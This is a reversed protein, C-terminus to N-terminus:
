RQTQLSQVQALIQEVTSVEYSGMSKLIRISEQLNAIATGFDGQAALLQASMALTAAIGQQDEIARKIELSQEYLAIAENVKGQNAYIGAMQHLTAAIGQQDEIARKIELSQEYLAIAATVDGQTTKINAMAHLTAAIGRQDGIERQTALAQEYLQVSNILNGQQTNIRAMAYLNAAIGQQNGIMRNIDLSQEYLSIADNIKGQTVYINALANITNAIGQQNGIIRNIDLSQEYLSIADNIKGQTTYINAMEYLNAAVGQQDNITQDIELVQTHLQIAENFKGQIEYVKALRSLAKAVQNKDRTEQKRLGLSKQLNINARDLDQQYDDSKRQELREVYAAGLSSYLSTLLPSTPDKIKLDDIQKELNPISGQSITDVNAMLIQKAFVVNSNGQIQVIPANASNVQYEIGRSALWLSAELLDFQIIIQHIQQVIPEVEAKLRQDELAIALHEKLNGVAVDDQKEAQAVLAEIKPKGQVCRNWLLKGLAEIPALAKEVVKEGLKSSVGEYFKDLVPKSLVIAVGTTIPEISTTKQTHINEEDRSLSITSRVFEFVGGRWSWFDPAEKALSTAVKETVWLVVPFQFARLGERTWQVSFFFQELASKTEGLRLGLLADAGRVTVISAQSQIEPLEDVLRQLATKLSPQTQDIRVQKCTVGQRGLDAEYHQIMEDRYAPSDCIAILLNLKGFSAQVSLVLRRLNRQNEREQNTAVTM